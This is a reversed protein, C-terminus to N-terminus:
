VHLTRGLHEALKRAQALTDREWDDDSGLESRVSAVVSEVGIIEQRLDAKSAKGNLYRIAADALEVAEEVMKGIEARFGFKDLALAHIDHIDVYPTGQPSM